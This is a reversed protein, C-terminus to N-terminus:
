DPYNPPDIKTDRVLKYGPPVSPRLQGLDTRQHRMDADFGGEHYGLIYGQDEGRGHGVLYGVVVGVITPILVILFMSFTTM